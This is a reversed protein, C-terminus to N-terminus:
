NNSPADPKKGELDAHEECQQGMIEVINHYAEEFANVANALELGHEWALPCDSGIRNAALAKWGDIAMLTGSILMECAKDAEANIEAETPKKKPKM